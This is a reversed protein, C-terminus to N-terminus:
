LRVLLGLLAPVVRRWCLLRGRHGTGRQLDRIGEAVMTRRPSFGLGSGDAEVLHLHHRRDFAAARHRKAAMDRAALVAGIRDNGVVAATVPMAGLTLAGGDSFPKGLALGFQQRDA